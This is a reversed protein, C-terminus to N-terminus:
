VPVSVSKASYFIYVFTVYYICCLTIYAIYVSTVYKLIFNGLLYQVNHYLIIYLLQRHCVFNQLSSKLLLKPVVTYGSILMVGFSHFVLHIPYQFEVHQFICVRLNICIHRQQFLAHLM